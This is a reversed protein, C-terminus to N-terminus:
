IAEFKLLGTSLPVYAGVQCNEKGYNFCEKAEKPNPFDISIIRLAEKANIKDWEMWVKKRLSIKITM